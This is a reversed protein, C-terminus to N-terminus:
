TVRLAQVTLSEGYCRFIRFHSLAKAETRGVPVAVLEGSTTDLGYAVLKM